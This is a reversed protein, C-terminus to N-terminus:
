LGLEQRVTETIQEANESVIMTVYLGNQEVSCREVMAAQKPNYNKNQSLKSQYRSDLAEKVTKASEADKAKILVIEEQSVGTGNVGGAFEEVDDASIGYFRDLSDAKSYESFNKLEVQAQVKDFVESLPAAKKQSCACLFVTAFAAALLIIKKM